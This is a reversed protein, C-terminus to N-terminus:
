ESELALGLSSALMQLPKLTSLPNTEVDIYSFICLNPFFLILRHYNLVSTLQPFQSLLVQLLKERGESSNSCQELYSCGVRRCFDKASQRDVAKKVRLDTKSCVVIRNKM